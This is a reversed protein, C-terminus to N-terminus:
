ILHTQPNVSEGLQAWPESHECGRESDHAQKPLFWATTDNFTEIEKTDRFASIDARKRWVYSLGAMLPASELDCPEDFQPRVYVAM